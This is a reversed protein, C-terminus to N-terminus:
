RAVFAAYDRGVFAKGTEPHMVAGSATSDAGPCSSVLTEKERGGTLRRRTWSPVARRRATTRRTNAAADFSESLVTGPADSIFSVCLVLRLSACARSRDACCFHYKAQETSFCLERFCAGLINASVFIFSAAIDYKM